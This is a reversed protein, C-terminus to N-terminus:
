GNFVEQYRDHGPYALLAVLDDQATVVLSTAAVRFETRYL